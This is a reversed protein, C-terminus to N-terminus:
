KVHTSRTTRAAVTRGPRRGQHASRKKFSWTVEYDLADCYRQVTSLMVDAGAELKSVVSQSSAM